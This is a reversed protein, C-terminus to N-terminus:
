PTLLVKVAEGSRALQFGREYDTLSLQHTLTPSIELSGDMLLQEMLEWTSWMRRGHIGHLTAEKFVINASLNLAVEQPFLGALVVTGGKRLFPLAEQIARENGTTEILVEPRYTGTFVSSANVTTPNWTLVDGCRSAVQLRNAQVDSISVSEAGLALSVCASFIGIPGAGLVAVRKGAVSSVQAAHVGVGLPELVAAVEDSISIPVKRACVAPIIAFKSFCGHTHLGFLRLNECIHQRGTLCLRCDGCPIHTEVSIRDGVSLTTVSRGIKIVEGVCEHGMIGPVLLNANAAWQDWTYIHLDTGCISALKIRLLIEHDKPEPVEVETLTAGSGPKLKMVATMSM